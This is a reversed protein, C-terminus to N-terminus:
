SGPRLGFFLQLVSFSGASLRQCSGATPTSATAVAPPWGSAPLSM